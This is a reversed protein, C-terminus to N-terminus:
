LPSSRIIDAWRDTWSFNKRNWHFKTHLYLDILSVRRYAMHGWGLDLDLDHLDLLQTFPQNWLRDGRRSHMYDLSNQYELVTDLNQERLNKYEKENPTV